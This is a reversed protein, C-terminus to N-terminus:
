HREPYRLADFWRCAGVIEAECFFGPKATVATKVLFPGQAASYPLKSLRQKRASVLLAHGNATTHHKTVCALSRLTALVAFSYPTQERVVVPLFDELGCKWRNRILGCHKTYAKAHPGCSSTKLEKPNYSPPPVPFKWSWTSSDDESIVAQHYVTQIEAAKAANAERSTIMSESDVSVGGDSDTEMDTDALLLSEGRVDYPVLSLDSSTGEM